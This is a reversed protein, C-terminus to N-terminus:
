NNFRERLAEALSNPQKDIITNTPPTAPTNGVTTTTGFCGAYKDKVPKVINEWDQIKDNELNISDLDFAKLLLDLVGENAGAEKLSKTLANTKLNNNEKTEIGTKYDNFQTELEEYKTKYEDTDVKSAQIELDAIKGNLEDILESKKRYQAKSVFDKPIERKLEGACVNAIEESVGNDTLIKKIDLM